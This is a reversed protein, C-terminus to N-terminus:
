EHNNFRQTISTYTRGSRIDNIIGKAVSYIACLEKTKLTSHFIEIVQAENFKAQPHNTGSYHKKRHDSMRKRADETHTKGKMHGQQGIHSQRLREITEPSAKRGLCPHGKTKYTQKRRAITEETLKRGRLKKSIKDVMTAAREEGLFEKWPIGANPPKNGLLSIKNAEGIKNKTSESLKGNSGGGRINLLVFNADRHLQIYLVEYRDMVEQEVDPPLEHIVEFKHAAKGYKSISREIAMCTHHKSHYCKWRQRINYSQGIYVKGTPSTIKYIGTM